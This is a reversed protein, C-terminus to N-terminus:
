RKVLKKSESKTTATSKAENAESCAEWIDCDDCEDLQEISVGFVGGIEAAPCVLEKDSKTAPKVKPKVVPKVKPKVPPAPAREIGEIGEHGSACVKGSPTDYVDEGCEECVIGDILIAEEEETEPAEESVEPEAEVKPEPEEQQRTERARELATKKPLREQKPAPEDKDPSSSTGFFSLRVEEDTPHMKIIEDLAFSQELIFDPISPTERQLLQFATYEISDRKTGQADEYSGTKGISWYVHNGHDYHTWDTFGGGRPKKAIEAVKKEFFFHAVEFIQIGKDIQEQNDHCWILYACRRSAKIASYQKKDEIYNAKMYVCIPDPIKWTSATCIFFDNMSGIRQHAWFDVKYTLVGESKNPHQRGAYFPIVDIVHEGIDPRWININLEKVLDMNFVSGLAFGRDDKSAYSEEYEKQLEVVAENARDRFGKVRKPLGM